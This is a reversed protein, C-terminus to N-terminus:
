QRQQLARSLSRIEQLPSKIVLINKSITDGVEVNNWQELIDNIDAASMVGDM